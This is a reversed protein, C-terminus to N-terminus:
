RVPITNDLFYRDRHFIPIELDVIWGSDSRRIMRGRKFDSPEDNWNRGAAHILDHKESESKGQLEDHTYLSSALMNLSNASADLQRWVFYQSVDARDPITFVRADFAALQPSPFNRAFASAFLSSSVSAMKQINGDFWMKSRPTSFDTLLFSYEDSQGYAFQCGIMEKTLVMAAADMADALPRHYPRPLDQTYTHFNKGDVRIVVYSRRPLFIRYADEYDHKIRRGLEDKMAKAM